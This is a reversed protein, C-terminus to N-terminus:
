IVEKLEYNGSHKFKNLIRVAEDLSMKRAENIDCVFHKQIGFLTKQYYSNNTKHKIVWM